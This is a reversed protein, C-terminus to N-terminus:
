IVGTARLEAIRAADYGLETLVADTDAGLAPAAQRPLQEGPFRFAPPVMRFAGHPHAYSWVRDEGAVYESTLAREIDHVPAAPVAGAFHALWAETTRASLAADLLTTLEARNALRAKFTAFRVDGPWEPRGIKECLV